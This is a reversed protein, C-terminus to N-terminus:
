LCGAAWFALLAGVSCILSIVVPYLLVESLTPRAQLSVPACGM